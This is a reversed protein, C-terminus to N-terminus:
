SDKVSENIVNPGGKTDRPNQDKFSSPKQPPQNGKQEDDLLREKLETMKSEKDM